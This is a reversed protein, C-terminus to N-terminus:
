PFALLVAKRDSIYRADWIYLNMEGQTLDTSVPLDTAVRVLYSAGAPM